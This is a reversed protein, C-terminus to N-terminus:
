RRRFMLSCMLCFSLMAMLLALVCVVIYIITKLHAVIFDCYVITVFGTVTYLLIIIVAWVIGSKTM